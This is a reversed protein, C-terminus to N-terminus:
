IIQEAFIISLCEAYTYMFVHKAHKPSTKLFKVCAFVNMEFMFFYEISCFSGCTLKVLSDCHRVNKHRIHYINKAISVKYYKQIEFIHKGLYHEFFLKECYPINYNCGKDLVKISGIIVGKFNFNHSCLLFDICDEDIINSNSAQINCTTLYSFRDIVQTSVDQTGNLFFFIGNFNKFQHCSYSLLPGWLHVCSLLHLLQHVNYSMNERGYLGPFEYVFRNVLLAAENINSESLVKNNLM